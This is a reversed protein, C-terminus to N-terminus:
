SIRGSSGPKPTLWIAFEVVRRDRYDRLFERAEQFRDLDDLKMMQHVYYADTLIATKSFGLNLLYAVEDFLHMHSQDISVNEKEWRVVLPGGPLSPRAGFIIHKQKTKPLLLCVAREHGRILDMTLAYYEDRNLIRVSPEDTLLLAHKRWESRRKGGKDPGFCFYFECASCVWQGSPNALANWDNFTAKLVRKAPVTGGTGGCVACREGDDGPVVGHAAALWHVPNM